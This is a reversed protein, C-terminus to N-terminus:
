HKNMISFVCSFGSTARIFVRKYAHMAFHEIKLLGVRTSGPIDRWPPYTYFAYKLTDVSFDRYVLRIVSGIDCTVFHPKIESVKYTKSM